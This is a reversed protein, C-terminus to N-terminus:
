GGDYKIIRRRGTTENNLTYTRPLDLNEYVVDLKSTNQKGVLAIFGSGWRAYLEHDRDYVDVQKYVGKCRLIAWAGEIKSFM